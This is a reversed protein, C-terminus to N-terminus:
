FAKAALDVSKFIDFVQDFKTLRFIRQVNENEPLIIKVDGDNDRTMKLLLVLAALGASDLFTVESLDVVFDRLGKEILERFDKRYSSSTVTDIRDVLKIITIESVVKELQMNM